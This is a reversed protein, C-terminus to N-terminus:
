DSKVFYYGKKKIYYNTDDAKGKYYTFIQKPRDYYNLTLVNREIIYKGKLIEEKYTKLNFDVFLFTGNANFTINVDANHPIIWRGIIYKEKDQRIEGTKLNEKITSNACKFSNLVFSLMFVIVYISMKKM